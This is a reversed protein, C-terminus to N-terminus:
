EPYPIEGGLGAKELLPDITLGPSCHPREWPAFPLILQSLAQADDLLDGPEATPLLRKIRTVLSEKAICTRASFVRLCVGFGGDLWARWEREATRAAAERDIGSDAWCGPYAERAGDVQELADVFAAIFHARNAAAAEAPTLGKRLSLIARRLDWASSRSYWCTADDPARAAGRGRSADLASWYEGQVACAYTPRPACGTEILTSILDESAGSAAALTDLRWFWRAVYASASANPFIQM